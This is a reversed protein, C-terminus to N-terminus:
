RLSHAGCTHLTAAVPPQSNAAETEDALPTSQAGPHAARFLPSYVLPEELRLREGLHARSRKTTRELREPDSASPSKHM